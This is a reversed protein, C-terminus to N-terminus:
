RPVLHDDFEAVRATVAVFPDAQQVKLTYGAELTTDDFSKGASDHERLTLGLVVDATPQFTRGGPLRSLGMLILLSEEAASGAELHDVVIVRRDNRLAQEVAQTLKTAFPRMRIQPPQRTGNFRIKLRKSGPHAASSVATKLLTRIQEADSEPIPWAFNHTALTTGTSLDVVSVTSEPQLRDNSVELRVMADFGTLAGSSITGLSREDLLTQLHQRDVVQIALVELEEALRDCALEAAVLHPESAPGLLRPPLIVFSLADDRPSVM